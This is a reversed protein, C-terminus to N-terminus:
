GSRVLLEAVLDSWTIGPDGTLATVVTFYGLMLKDHRSGPKQGIESFDHM